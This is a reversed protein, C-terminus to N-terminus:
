RCFGSHFNTGLLITIFLCFFFVVYFLSNNQSLKFYFQLSVNLLIFITCSIFSCTLSQKWNAKFADHFDSFIFIHKNQVMSMTITTMAGFAPGITVIPISYIIFLLNLKILDWFRAVFLQFFLSVGIKQHEGKEVGPGERVFNPSLFGM